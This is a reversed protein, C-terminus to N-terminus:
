KCKPDHEFLIKIDEILDNFSKTQEALVENITEWATKVAVLNKIRALLEETKFPKSLCDQAGSKLLQIKLSEDQKATLLIIPIKDCESNRRIQVVMQDGSLEPMMLDTVICDPMFKEAMQIGIKGNAATIVDYYPELIEMLYKTMSTNDEVVLVLDKEVNNRARNKILYNRAHTLSPSQIDTELELLTQYVLDSSVLNEQRNVEAGAPALKPFRITFHAGGLDSKEVSIAGYHMETFERAIALGLGTGGFKRTIGADAQQFREFVKAKFHEPIGPGSDMVHLQIHDSNVIKNPSLAIVELKVSIQGFAPTFKFANSLLNLVVKEMKESDCQVTLPTHPTNIDFNISKEKALIEFNSCLQRIFTAYDKMEVYDCSSKNAEIRSLDLLSNVHKLLINANSVIVKMAKDVDKKNVSDSRLLKEAPGLILTLPTRLEHSITALFHSKHEDLELIKENAKNLDENKQKVEDEAHKRETIDRGESVLYKVNHEEDFVPTLSFDIYLHKGEAPADLPVEYRVIRKERVAVNIQEKLKERQELSMNKWWPSDWSPVNKVDENTLGSIRLASPNVELLNGQIDVLGCFQFLNDYCITAHKEHERTKELDAKEKRVQILEAILEERSKLEFEQM